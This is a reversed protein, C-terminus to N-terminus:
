VTGTTSVPCMDIYGAQAVEVALALSERNQQLAETAARRDTIDIITGIARIPNDGEFSVIRGQCHVWVYHGAKHRIRYEVDYPLGEKVHDRFAKQVKPFDDPHCLQNHLTMTPNFTTPDVGFIRAFRPGTSVVDSVIDWDWIAAGMSSIATQLQKERETTAGDMTELPMVRSEKNSRRLCMILIVLGLLAVFLAGVLIFLGSDSRLFDLLRM